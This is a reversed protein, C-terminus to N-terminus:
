QLIRGKLSRKKDSECMIRVLDKFKVKPKWGLQKKAEKADGKLFSVDSPRYYKNNKKIIVKKSDKDIAYENHKKGKWALNFGFHKAALTAFEKVSHEEGTALVFDKPKNNQMMRWIGEVFDGAYGWDRRAYCNGLELVKKRGAQIEALTSTIKRTVFETGRLPSEHNFLIGSCAFINYAERYNITMYHGFVKSTAYPSRPHFHSKENLKTIGMEGFMESSSAQYFKIKKDVMRISELIKLVGLADAQVTYIPNEFSVSVFSQAALNYIEDPKILKIVREINSKELLELSLLEISEIIGLEELRWLNLSSSRRYTGYVKYGKNLLLNALYAGDQGTIGTILAIKKKM